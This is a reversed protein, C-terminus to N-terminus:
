IRLTIPRRNLKSYDKAFERVEIFQNSSVNRFIQRTQSTPWWIELTEIRTAKRLGIHQQLPSAGFSGGSTVHRYIFRPKGDEGVLTLKIRAGIAARNSKVGVLKIQIWNNRIDPNRFLACYYKDGPTAGGINTYICPKGDNFINAIAVGHGKQLSGTGSSATIDTFYKGEKNKFLVNPVVSVYSPDGTGLYFDLFGDNDVDGFNAGMTMSVRELGVEKTVDRFSAGGINKYLKLTEAKSPLGLYSRIFEAVSHVFSAVFIDLWGDNDYDFFWAPFSFIPKEVHLQKAVDTFTGNRNNHYLFNEGGYNSVYFDPYGDGDYDGAVVAKSLAVRDVGASHSVDTFTGDGNNHFLQCAALENAVFLDLLGDNDFDAWAVSHSSTAPIALGAKRTVDTFTGDGNNRLLSNRMPSQWGGRLVYIDLWGDNNYDTQVLNLGGLQNSLRAEATRDSFTGDGNNHFYRLPQCHDWSSVVIDLYGDNDFDDVIVGGAMGYVDLGLSPAIDAFKGIDEKSEFISFPVLHERPVGEPYKGLTMHALNLLWKEELDDPNQALYKLLHKIANQSGSTLKFEAERSIPFISSRANHQSVWNENEGHRFYANALKKELVMQEEKLGRAVAMDYAALFHNIAKPMDGQYSFLQGLLQHAEFIYTEIEQIGGAPEQRRMQCNMQLDQQYDAPKSLRDFLRDTEFLGDLPTVLEYDATVGQSGMGQPAPAQSLAAQTEGVTRLIAYGSPAAFVNIGPEFRLGNLVDHFAPPFASLGPQGIYGFETNVPTISFEKALAEFSEGRQLRALFERADYGSNLVIIHLPAGSPKGKGSGGLISGLLALIERRSIM